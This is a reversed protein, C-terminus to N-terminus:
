CLMPRLLRVLEGPESVPPSCESDRRVIAYPTDSKEFGADTATKDEPSYLRVTKCPVYVALAQRHMRFTLDAEKKGVVTVATWPHLAEWVAHAFDAGALGEREFVPMLAKLAAKAAESYRGDGSLVSLELLWRAALGNEGVSKVPEALAGVGGCDPRGDYFAGDPARLEKLCFEALFRSRELWKEEGTGSYLNLLARGFAAQDYLRGFLEPGDADLYHAAGRGERYTHRWLTEATEAALRQWRDEELVWTALSLASILAANQGTFVTRDVPPPTVRRRETESRRYYEEDAYQSGAWAGDSNRLHSELYALIGRATDAFSLEGTVQLGRLYVFLLAANDGLIKEYQPLTWERNASYRFFGGEEADYLTSGAMVTLTSTAVKLCEPDAGSRTALLALELAQPFTFKAERGFGTYIFDYARKIARVTRDYPSIDLSPAPAPEEPTESPKDEARRFEERKERWAGALEKLVQKLRDPPVYSGGTIARGKPTLIVTTPLSGRNYREDVDPRRDPDLRVPVYRENLLSIVEPDSYSTEDMVHCRRCWVASICLLVPRDEVLAEAFTRDDWPRWNIEHARNPRPSFRFEAKMKRM